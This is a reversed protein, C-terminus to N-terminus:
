YVKPLSKLDTTYKPSLMERRMSWTRKIGMSAYQITYRGYSHNIYDVAKVVKMFKKVDYEEFLNQQHIHEPTLDICYVGAKYYKYGEKFIKELLKMAVDLMVPTYSTAFPLTGGLSGFYKADNNFHNTRIFVYLYSTILKDQRLKEAARTIHLAIAEKLENLTKVPRSFSRTNAMNKKPEAVEELGYCEIGKLEYVMRLGQITMHKKIWGEPQSILDFATKVGNALLLKAYQRGVGWLEQVPYEQLYPIPDKGILSFCGKYKEQQKAIHSGLKALTKTSAIGISVPVGTWQKVTQRITRGYDEINPVGNLLLFAEDISYYEIDESFTALTEMVRNSLDGYLEYNSSFVKAGHQALLDKIKFYPQGLDIGLAKAEKSKAIVMGDNNSLVVIPMGELKPQFVKECSAYFSNCDILAFTNPM